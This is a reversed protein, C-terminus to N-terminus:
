SPRNYTPSASGAPPGLANARAGSTGPEPRGAAGEEEEVRQARIALGAGLAIAGLAMIGLPLGVQIVASSDPDLRAVAQAVILLFSVLAAAAAFVIPSRRREYARGAAQLAAAAIALGVTVLLSLLVLFDLFSSIQWANREEQEAKMRADEAVGADIIGQGFLYRGQSREFERAQAGEVTSYWDGAMIFLLALAALFAVVHGLRLRFVDFSSDGDFPKGPAQAPGNRGGATRRPTATTM